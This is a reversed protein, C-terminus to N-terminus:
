DTDRPRLWASHHAVEVPKDYEFSTEHRVSLRRTAAAAQIPAEVAAPTSAEASM